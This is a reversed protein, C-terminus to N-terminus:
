PSHQCNALVAQGLCLGGDNPPARRHRVVAFGHQTLLEQTLELLLVNQFAGGSLAVAMPASGASALSERLRVCGAAAIEAMARHFRAGIEGPSRGALVDRTVARLIDATEIVWGDGEPLLRFPYGQGYVTAGVTALELEIAAQGEYTVQQSGPADVLAAVADFLRGASSTVPTNLRNELLRALLRVNREGARQVTPLPLRLTEEEGYLRILQALANRWPQRIAAEGGPLPMAELHAARVFGQCISGYFFEGGWITGDTGYGTGDFAVGIVREDPPRANDALCAAIHAHHHQIGVLPMGAEALEQAYRTSLYDPHLDCAVIQPQVDFLRCYHEIGERFSRLTEYNELDGIHHSLFVHNEKALCFTSKLEGGCALLHRNFLYQNFRSGVSLPAPAYGRSRRLPLPLGGCIRVVSDDCRMNIPRNHTLFADAIGGLQTMAEEDRYAIPEDSRNGSTMVLPMGADRLLLHHLPTYALMVGLTRQRPAIAGPLDVDPRRQLLVIPRARSTLLAEEESTPLCLQRVQELDLAMLAFPKDQRAKRARLEATAQEHFPNCALHYGGLGKVALIAGARLLEAARGIANTAAMDRGQADRLRAQPGCVPCANPQAHFRRDAPNEYEARCAACMIFDAMTTAARDYPVGCIITFRPGCNTCNIFPYRYRRDAPDFMERLCDACVAVDPSILAHRQQGARSEIIRFEADDGPPAPQWAVAEVLALPPAEERIGALFRDLAAEAGQAEIKVGDADNCVWGVLGHRRALAFIFPRFGVGQVIGRVEIRRREVRPMSM